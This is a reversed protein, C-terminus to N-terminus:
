VTQANLYNNISIRKAMNLIRGKYEGEFGEKEQRNFESLKRDKISQLENLMLLEKKCYSMSKELNNEYDTLNLWDYFVIPILLFQRNKNEKWEKIWDDKEQQTIGIKEEIMKPKKLSEEVRSLEFRKELYPIMVEDFLSLNMAKGWDTIDNGKNRFAYEVENVTLNKYGETLKQQFQDILVNMLDSVPISWGTIAHIKVLLAQAANWRETDDMIGFTKGSYKLEIIKSEDPHLKGKLVTM